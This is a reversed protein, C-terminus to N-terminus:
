GPARVQSGRIARRREFWILALSSVVILAAGAVVHWQPVEAWIAYGYLFAWVLGTYEVPAVVSAPAYRFGEYVLYQGLGGTLGLGLMLGLSALDPTKWLWPLVVVCGAAFLLNSVLMQTATSDSRNIWRVLVVSAGWCFAAILASLAPVPDFNGSPQAAIVVGVFGLLAASWRAADVHEKLMWASLIVAIIPAAFYLTTLEGLALRRSAAYYFSWAALILVARAVLAAKNRSESFNRLSSPGWMLWAIVAIVLSRTFLVQPVSYTQVLWKVAADQVSFMAYGAATLAIGTLVRPSAESTRLKMSALNSGDRRSAIAGSAAANKSSGHQHRRARWGSEFQLRM